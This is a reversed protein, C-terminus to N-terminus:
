QQELYERLVYAMGPVYAMGAATMYWWPVSSTEIRATVGCRALTEEVQPLLHSAGYLVGWLVFNWDDQKRHPITFFASTHSVEDEGAPETIILHEPLHPILVSAWRNSPTAYYLPGAMIAVLNMVFGWSPIACAVVMMIYVIALQRGSLSFRRTLKRLGGNVLAILLLLFIAAGTSYDACLPSGHVVMVGYPEGVALAM